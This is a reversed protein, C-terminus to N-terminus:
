IVESELQELLKRAKEADGLIAEDLVKGAKLRFNRWDENFSKEDFNEIEENLFNFCEGIPTTIKWSHQSKLYVEEDRIMQKKKKDSIESTKKTHKKKLKEKMLEKLDAVRTKIYNKEDLKLRPM